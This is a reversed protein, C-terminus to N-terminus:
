WGSVVELLNLIKNKYLDNNSMLYFHLYGNILCWKLKKLDYNNVENYGSLFSNIDNINDMFNTNNRYILSWAIDQEKFGSGAYELDLVGIIEKDKWIINGYHFDGHIFTKNNFIIKNNILYDYYKKLKEDHHYNDPILYFKRKKALFEKDLKINHILGLERGYKFLYEQHHDKIITSLKNGDIKELVMYRKNKILGNEYILPLKNYLNNENLYNILNIEKFFSKKSADEIKIISPILCNNYNILYEGIYKGSEYYKILKIVTINRFKIHKTKIAIGNISNM